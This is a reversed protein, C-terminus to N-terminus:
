TTCLEEVARRHIKTRVSPTRVAVAGVYDREPELQALRWARAASMDGGITLIAPRDGPTLSTAFRDLPLALGSGIAKLYAEKRTWCNFLGRVRAEGTLRALSEREAEAFFLTAIAELDEIPRLREIDVGIAREPAVGYVALGHSHSVNFHIRSRDFPPALAPKGHAGYAFRIQDASMGLYRALLARLVARCLVYERRHQEFHLRDARAREDASLTAELEGVLLPPSVLPIFWVHLDRCSEFTYRRDSVMVDRVRRTHLYARNEESGM